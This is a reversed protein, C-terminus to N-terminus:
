TTLISRTHTQRKLRRNPRKPEEWIKIFFETMQLLRVSFVHLSDYIAFHTRHNWIGPVDFCLLHVSFSNKIIIEKWKYSLGEQERKAGVKCRQKLRTRREISETQIITFHIEIITTSWKHTRNIIFFFFIHVNKMWKLNFSTVCTEQNECEM